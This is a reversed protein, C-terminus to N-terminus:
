FAGPEILDFDHRAGWRRMHHDHGELAHGGIHTAAYQDFTAGRRKRRRRVTGTVADPLARAMVGKAQEEAGVIKVLPAMEDADNFDFAMWLRIWPSM